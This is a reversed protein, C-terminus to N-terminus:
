LRTPLLVRLCQPIHRQVMGEMFPFPTAARELPTAQYVQHKLRRLSRVQSYSTPTPPMTEELRGKTSAQVVLHYQPTQPLRTPVTCLTASNLTKGRNSISMVSLAHLQVLTIADAHMSSKRPSKASTDSNSTIELSINELNRSRVATLVFSCANRTISIMSM